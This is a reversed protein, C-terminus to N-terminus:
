SLEMYTTWAIIVFQTIIIAEQVRVKEKRLREKQPWKERDGLAFINSNKNGYCCLM